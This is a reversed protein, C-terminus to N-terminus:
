QLAVRRHGENIFVHYRRGVQAMHAPDGVAPLEDLQRDRGSLSNSVSPNRRLVLFLRKRFPPNGEPQMAVAFAVSLQRPPLLELRHERDPAEAALHAAKIKRPLVAFEALVVDLTVVRDGDRLQGLTGLRLQLIHDEDEAVTVPHDM